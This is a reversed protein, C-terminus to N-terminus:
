LEFGVNPITIYSSELESCKKNEPDDMDNQCGQALEVANVNYNRM